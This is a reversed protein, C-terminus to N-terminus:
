EADVAARVVQLERRRVDALDAPHPGYQRSSESLMVAQRVISRRSEADSAAVSLARLSELIRITVSVDRAGAQRIQNFAAAVLASFPQPYAVIRLEGASDHRFPTTAPRAALSELSATLRDICRIATFPDNVGPSLARVAVEVLEEIAFEVDQEATRESGLIFARNIEAAVQDDIREAPWAHLLPSSRLVYHGPRVGIRLVLDRSTALQILGAGDISQLYGFDNSTVPAADEDFGGPLPAEDPQGDDGASERPYGIGQPFMRGAAADLERGAVAIVNASRMSIAAHHLFFILVGVSAIALLVAGVVSVHPVLPGEDAGRVTRLILLSYVFTAIFTGLVVQNATDRMFGRLLRPGYQQSALTLAVVMISFAVGAVTIMSGAITMLTARAGEAGGAFLWWYGALNPEYRDDIWAAGFSLAAAASTMLSPIFWFSSRLSSWLLRVRPSM